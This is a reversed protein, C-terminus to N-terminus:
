FKPVSNYVELDKKALKKLNLKLYCEARNQYLDLSLFDTGELMEECDCFYSAAKEYLGNQMACEALVRLFDGMKFFLGEYAVANEIFVQGEEFRNLYFYFTGLSHNYSSNEPNLKIAQKLDEIAGDNDNIILMRKATGRKFYAISNLPERNIIISYQHIAKEILTKVKHKNKRELNPDIWNNHMVELAKNFNKDASDITIIM